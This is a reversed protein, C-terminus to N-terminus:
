RLYRSINLILYFIVTNALLSDIRDLIGGHGPLLNGTDKLSQKRKFASMLLDGAPGATGLGLILLIALEYSFIDMIVSFLFVLIIGIFGGLYGATSKNPSLRNFFTARSGLLLGVYYELSNQFITAVILLGVLWAGNASVELGRRLDLLFYAPFSLWFLASASWTFQDVAAPTNCFLLVMIPIFLLLPLFILLDAEILVFGLFAVLVVGWSSSGGLQAWELAAMCLVVILFGAWWLGGAFLCGFTLIGLLLGTLLRKM